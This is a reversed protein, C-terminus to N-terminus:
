LSPAVPLNPGTPGTSDRHHCFSVCNWCEPLAFTCQLVLDIAGSTETTRCASTNTTTNPPTPSSCYFCWSVRQIDHFSHFLWPRQAQSLNCATLTSLLTFLICRRNITKTKHIGPVWTVTSFPATAWISFLSGHTLQGLGKTRSLSSPAISISGLDLCPHKLTSITQLASHIGPVM